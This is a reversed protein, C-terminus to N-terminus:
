QLPIKHFASLLAALRLLSLCPCTIRQERSNLMHLVISNSNIHNASTLSTAITLTRINHQSPSTFHHKQNAHPLLIHGRAHQELYEEAVTVLQLKKRQDKQLLVMADSEPIMKLVCGDFILPSESTLEDRPKATLKAKMLEEEELAAFQESGFFLTDDTQQMGVVGFTDKSTTILLCPDYSSIQLKDQHHKYYTVTM